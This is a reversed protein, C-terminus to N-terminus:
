ISGASDKENAETDKQPITSLVPYSTFTEQFLFPLLEVGVGM